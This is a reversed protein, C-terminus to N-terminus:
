TRDAIESHVSDREGGGGRRERDAYGMKDSIFAQLGLQASAHSM